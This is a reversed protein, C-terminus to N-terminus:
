NQQLIRFRRLMEKLSEAQGSMEESAAACEESASSNTQVVDNIQDVGETIEMISKAQTESAAAIDGVKKVISQAGAVVSAM